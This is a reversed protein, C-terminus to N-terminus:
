FGLNRFKKNRKTKAASSGEGSAATDGPAKAKKRISISGSVERGKAADEIDEPTIHSVGYKELADPGLAEKIQQLQISQQQLVKAADKQQEEALPGQPEAGGVAEGQKVAVRRAAFASEEEAELLNHLHQHIKVIAKNFLALIQHVPVKFEEALTDPQRRQGGMGLLAAEQLFSLQLPRLRQGFYLACLLPVLDTILALDALQQAYKHLRSLDHRTLFQFMTEANVAPLYGEAEQGRSGALTALALSVSMDRFPGGTLEVFRRRFDAAFLQVWHGDAAKSRAEAEDIGGYLGRKHTEGQHADSSAAAAAAAAPAPAAPRLMICSHEGTVDNPQQRLYVPVFGRRAWFRLLQDTLGFATGLYDVAFPPCSRACPCLLPPTTQPRLQEPTVTLISLSDAAKDKDRKGNKPNKAREKTGKPGKEEEAAAEDPEESETEEDSTGAELDLDEIDADMKSVKEKRKSGQQPQQQQQQAAKRQAFAAFEQPEQLSLGKGEFFDILQQLAASGFGMRQLSPHVAIRVIRAGTLLGVDENGFAQALTWPLLDGAPRLGRGLAERIAGRSLSGEIAVQIACYIDPLTDQQDEVTKLFVFLLHAPADAMLQLDNPSNKYHSSVFLGQLRQLFAESAPHYSFLADRNVLYLACSSAAPLGKIALVQRGVRPLLEQLAESEAYTEKSSSSSGNKSDASSSHQQQQQLHSQPHSAASGAAAAAAAAAALDDEDEAM